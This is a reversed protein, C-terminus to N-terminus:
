ERLGNVADRISRYFAQWHAAADSPGVPQEKRPESSGREASGGPDTDAQDDLREHEAM